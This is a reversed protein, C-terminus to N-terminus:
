GHVQCAEMVNGDPDYFFFYNVPDDHMVEGTAVGKALLAARAAAADQTRFIPYSATDRNNTIAQGTQWLTLSTPGLTDLVVLKATPDEWLPALGLKEQYWVKSKEVDSVRVIVTDIGQLVSSEQKSM